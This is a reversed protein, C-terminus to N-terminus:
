AGLLQQYINRDKDLFVNFVITKLAHRPYSKVTEIAIRAALENPFHFVGTSICCFAISELGNQEALDLCSRYCQALQEEQEKTPIGDPIIPGVTHIVHRAPLNYGQTIFADGTALLRGQMKDACEKRLQIGAASHICNDICNHLPAWCGLAQANAANVIADVKLRTIDGQWLLIDPTQPTIDSIEVVGKDERQMQLEADQMTLFDEAIPRPEWVNVEDENTAVRGELCAQISESSWVNMLARMMRQREELSSPIRHSVRNDAMLYMIIDKLNELRDM